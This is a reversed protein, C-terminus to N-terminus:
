EAVIDAIEQMEQRSYSAMTANNPNILFLWDGKGMHNEEVLRRLDKSTLKYGSRTTDAIIIEAGAIDLMAAFPDFFPVPLIVKSGKKVLHEVIGGSLATSSHTSLVMHEQAESLSMVGPFLQEALHKKLVEEHHEFAGPMVRRWVPECKERLIRRMAHPSAFAECLGQQLQKFDTPTMLGTAQKRQAFDDLWQLPVKVSDHQGDLLTLIWHTDNIDNSIAEHSAHDQRYVPYPNNAYIIADSLGKIKLSQFGSKRAPKSNRFDKYENLLDIISDSLAPGRMSMATVASVQRANKLGDFIEEFM